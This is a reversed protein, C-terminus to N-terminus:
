EIVPGVEVCDLSMAAAELAKQQQQEQRQELELKTKKAGHQEGRKNPGKSPAARKKQLSTMCSENM